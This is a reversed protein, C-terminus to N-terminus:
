FFCIRLEVDSIIDYKITYYLKTHYIMAFYLCSVLRVYRCHGYNGSNHYQYTELTHRLFVTVLVTNHSSYMCLSFCLLLLCSLVFCFDDLAHLLCRRYTGYRAHAPDIGIMNMGFPLLSGIVISTIVISWLSITIALTEPWPLLFVCARLFGAVSVIISVCLGMTM